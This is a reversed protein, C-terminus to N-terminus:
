ILWNRTALYRFLVFCWRTVKMLIIELCSNRFSFTRETWNMQSFLACDRQLFIGLMCTAISVSAVQFITTREPVKIVVFLKLSIFFLNWTRSAVEIFALSFSLIEKLWVHEDEAIPLSRSMRDQNPFIQLSTGWANIDMDVQTVSTWVQLVFESRYCNRNIQDFCRNRIM